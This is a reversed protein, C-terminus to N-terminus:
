MEDRNDKKKVASVMDANTSRPPVGNKMWCLGTSKVYTMADCKSDTRCMEACLQENGAKKGFADFDYGQLNIGYELPSMVAIADAGKDKAKEAPKMDDSNSPGVIEHGGGGGGGGGGTNLGLFNTSLQLLVGGVVTALVGLVWKWM